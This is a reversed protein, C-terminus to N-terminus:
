YPNILQEPHKSLYEVAKQLSLGRERLRKIM